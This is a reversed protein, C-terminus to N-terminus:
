CRWTCWCLLSAQMSVTKPRSLNFLKGDSRTRIYVNEKSTQAILNLITTLFLTFYTLTATEGQKLSVDNGEHRQASQLDKVINIFKRLCGSNQLIKWLMNRPVLKLRMLIIKSYIKEVVFLLSLRSLQRLCNQWRESFNDCDFCRQFRTTDERTGLM